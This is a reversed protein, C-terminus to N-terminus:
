MVQDFDYQGMGDVTIEFYASAKKPDKSDFRVFEVKAVRVRKNVGMDKLTKAAEKKAAALDKEAAAFADETNGKAKLYPEVDLAVDFRAQLKEELFKRFTTM